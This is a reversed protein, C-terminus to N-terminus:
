AGFKPPRVERLLKYPRIAFSEIVQKMEPTLSAIKSQSDPQFRRPVDPWLSRIAEVALINWSTFKIFLRAEPRQGASGICDVVAKLISAWIRADQQPRGAKGLMPAVVANVPQAESIVFANDLQRFANSIATSGCRSAHFVLATPVVRSLSLARLFLADLGTVLAGVDSEATEYRNL